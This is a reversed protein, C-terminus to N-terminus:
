QFVPENKEFDWLSQTKLDLLALKYDILAGVLGMKQRSLQEQYLNLDMSSLDGNKYRELNIEYTLEANRM